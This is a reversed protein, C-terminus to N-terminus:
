GLDRVPRYMPPQLRAVDGATYLQAPRGGDRTTTRGTPVLFGDTKTIKRHFNGVDLSVGWVSEYVRRLDSVTFEEPCFASAVTTQELLARAQELSDAIIRHHDFALPVAGAVADAVPLWRTDAADGGAATPPTSPVLAMYSISVVRGRPDRGPETYTGVPELRVRERPVGTEEHLERYAAEAATEDEMFGGPLAWMGQYPPNARKVLLVRLVNEYVTFISIDVAVNMLPPTDTM